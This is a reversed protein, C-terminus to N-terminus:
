AHSYFAKAKIIIRIIINVPVIRETIEKWNGSNKKMNVDFKYVYVFIM